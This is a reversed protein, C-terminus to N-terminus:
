LNALYPRQEDGDCYAKYQIQHEFEEDLPVHVEKKKGKMEEQRDAEAKDVLERADQNFDYLKLPWDSEKRYNATYVDKEDISEGM